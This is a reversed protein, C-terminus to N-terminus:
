FKILFVGLKHLFKLAIGAYQGCIQYNFFLFLTEAFDLESYLWLEYKHHVKKHRHRKKSLFRM